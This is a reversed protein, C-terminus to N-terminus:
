NFPRPQAAVRFRLYWASVDYRTRQEAGQDEPQGLRELPVMRTFQEEGKDKLFFETAIPGPRRRESYRQPWVARQSLCSCSGAPQCPSSSPRPRAVSATALRALPKTSTM